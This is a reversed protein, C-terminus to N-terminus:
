KLEDIVRATVWYIDMDDLIGMDRGFDFLRQESVFLSEVPKAMM